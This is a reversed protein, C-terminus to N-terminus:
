KTFALLSNATGLVGVVVGGLLLCYNLLLTGLPLDEKSKLAQKHLVRIYMVSPFIFMMCSGFVAGALSGVKGIDAFVSALLGLGLLLVASMSRVNGLPPFHVAAQTTFWNRATMFVLPFSTLSSLGFALLAVVALPDEPSFSNLAFSASHRGFLLFAVVVTSVYISAASLYALLTTYYFLHPDREKGALEAYYRPAQLFVIALDSYRM